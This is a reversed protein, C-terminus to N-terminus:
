RAIARKRRRFAGFGVLASGLLILSAPEPVATTTTGSGNSVSIQDGDASTTHFFNETGVSEQTYGLELFAPSSTFNGIDIFFDDNLPSTSVQDAGAALGGVVLEGISFGAPPLSLPGYYTFSLTSGLSINLSNSAIVTVSNDYSLAPDFTITFSGTVTGVPASQGFESTFGTASFTVTDTVPAAKAQSAVVLLLAGALLLRNSFRM